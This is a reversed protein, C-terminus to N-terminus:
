APGTAAYERALKANMAAGYEDYEAETVLPGFEAQVDQRVMFRVERSYSMMVPQGNYSESTQTWPEGDHDYFVPWGTPRGDCLVESIEAAVSDPVVEGSV